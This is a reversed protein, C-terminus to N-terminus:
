LLRCIRNTNEVRGHLIHKQNASVDSGKRNRVLGAPQSCAQMSRGLSGVLAVMTKPGAVYVLCWSAALRGVMLFRHM